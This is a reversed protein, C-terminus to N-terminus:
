KKYFLGENISVPHDTYWGFAGHGGTAAGFDVLDDSVSLSRGYSSIHKVISPFNHRKIVPLDLKRTYASRDYIPRTYYDPYHTYYTDQDEANDDDDLIFTDIRETITEHDYPDKVLLKAVSDDTSKTKGIFDGITKVPAELILPRSTSSTVQYSTQVPHWKDDDQITVGIPNTKIAPVFTFRRSSTVESSKEELKKGFDSHFNSHYSPFEPFTPIYVEHELHPNWDQGHVVIPKDEFEPNPTFPKFTELTEPEKFKSLAEISKEYGAIVPRSNSPPPPPPPPPVKGPKQKKGYFLRVKTPLQTRIPKVLLTTPQPKPPKLLPPRIFKPPKRQRRRNAGSPSPFIRLSRSEADKGEKELELNRPQLEFHDSSILASAEPLSEEFSTKLFETKETMKLTSTTSMPKMTTESIRLVEKNFSEQLFNNKFQGFDLKSASKDAQADEIEDSKIDAIKKLEELPNSKLNGVDKPKEAAAMSKLSGLKKLKELMEEKKEPKVTPELTRKRPDFNPRKKSSGTANKEVKRKKKIIYVNGKDDETKKKKISVVVGDTSFTEKQILSEKTPQPLPQMVVVEPQNGIDKSIFPKKIEKTIKESVSASVTRKVMMITENKSSGNLFGQPPKVRVEIVNSSEGEKPMEDNGASLSSRQQQSSDLILGNSLTLLLFVLLFRSWPMM